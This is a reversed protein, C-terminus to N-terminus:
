QKVQTISLRGALPCTEVSYSHFGGFDIVFRCIRLKLAQCNSIGTLPLHKHNPPMM